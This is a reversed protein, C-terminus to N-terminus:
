LYETGGQPRWIFLTVPHRSVVHGRPCRWRYRTGLFPEGFRWERGNAEVHDPPPNTDIPVEDRRSVGENQFFPGQLPVEEAAQVHAMGTPLRVPHLFVRDESFFARYIGLRGSSSDFPCARCRLRKTVDVAQRPSPV